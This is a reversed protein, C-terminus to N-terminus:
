FSLNESQFLVSGDTVCDDESTSPTAYVELGSFSTWM